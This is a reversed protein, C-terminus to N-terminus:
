FRHKMYLYAGSYVSQWDWRRGGDVIDVDLAFRNLGVGFGVASDGQYEFLISSDTLSGEQSGSNLFFIDSVLIMSWKPTMRYELRGGFMPLPATVSAVETVGAPPLNIGGGGNLDISPSAVLRNQVEQGYQLDGGYRRDATTPGIHAIHPLLLIAVIRVVVYSAFDVQTM